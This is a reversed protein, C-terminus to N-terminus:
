FILYQYTTHQNFIGATDGLRKQCIRSPTNNINLKKLLLWLHHPKQGAEWHSGMDASWAGKNEPNRDRNVEERRGSARRAETLFLTEGKSLISTSVFKALDQDSLCSFEPVYLSVVAPHQSTHMHTGIETNVSTLNM